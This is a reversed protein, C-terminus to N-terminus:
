RGRFADVDEAKHRLVVQGRMSEALHGGIQRRPYARLRCMLM